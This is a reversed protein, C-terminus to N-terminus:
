VYVHAHTDQFAVLERARQLLSHGLMDADKEESEKCQYAALLKDQDTSRKNFRMPVLQAADKFKQLEAPNHEVERLKMLWALYFVDCNDREWKGVDEDKMTTFYSVEFTRPPPTAM